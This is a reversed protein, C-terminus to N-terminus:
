VPELVVDRHNSVRCLVVLAAVGALLCGVAGYMMASLADGLSAWDDGAPDAQAAVVATMCDAGIRLAGAAILGCVGVWQRSLLIVAGALGALVAAATLVV